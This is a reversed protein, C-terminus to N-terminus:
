PPMGAVYEAADLIELALDRMCLFVSQWEELNLM